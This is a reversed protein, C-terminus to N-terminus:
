TQDNTNGSLQIAERAQDYISESEAKDAPEGTELWREINETFRLCASTLAANGARMRDVEAETDALKVTLEAVKAEGFCGECFPGDGNEAYLSDEYIGSAGTPEGCKTCHEARQADVDIIPM